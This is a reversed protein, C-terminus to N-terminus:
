IPRLAPLPRRCIRKPGCRICGRPRTRARSPTFPWCSAHRGAAHRARRIASRGSLSMWGSATLMGQTWGISLAVEEFVPLLEPNGRVEDMSPAPRLGTRVYVDTNGRIFHAHPLTALRELTEIPQAGFAVLDGLVWYEDVGGQAAIDALVADLAIANAHIDGILAIKM